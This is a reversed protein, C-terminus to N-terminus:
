EDEDVNQLLHYLLTECNDLDYYVDFVLHEIFFKYTTQVCVTDYDGDEIDVTMIRVVKRNSWFIFDVTSEDRNVVGYIERLYTLRAVFWHPDMMDMQIFILDEPEIDIIRICLLM